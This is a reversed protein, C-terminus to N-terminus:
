RRAVILDDGGERAVRDLAPDGDARCLECGEIEPPGRLLAYRGGREVRRKAIAIADFRDLAQNCSLLITFPVLDTIAVVSVGLRLLRRAGGEPMGTPFLM